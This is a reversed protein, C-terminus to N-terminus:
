RLGARQGFRSEALADRRLTQSAVLPTLPGDFYQQFWVETSLWTWLGPLSGQGSRWRAFATNVATIDFVGRERFARSAILDSAFEMAHARLYADVPTPFGQKDRRDITVAPLREHM